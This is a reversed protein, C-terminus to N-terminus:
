ALETVIVRHNGRPRAVLEARRVCAVRRRSPLLWAGSDQAHGAGGKRVIAGVMQEPTEVLDSGHNAGLAGVNELGVRRVEGGSGQDRASLLSRLDSRRKPVGVVHPRVCFRGDGSQNAFTRCSQNRLSQPSANTSEECGKIGGENRADRLRALKSACADPVYDVYWKSDVDPHEMGARAALLPPQLEGAAHCPGEQDADASKGDLFTPVHDDVCKRPGEPTSRGREKEEAIARFPLAEFAAGHRPHAERVELPVTRLQGARKRARVHQHVGAGVLCETQGNGLGGRAAYRDDHGVLASGRLARIWRARLSVSAEIWLGACRRDLTEKSAAARIQHSAGECRRGANWRHVLV